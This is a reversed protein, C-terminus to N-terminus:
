RRQGAAKVRPCISQVSEVPPPTPRPAPRAPYPFDQGWRYEFGSGDLGYRSWELNLHVSSKGEPRVLDCTRMKSASFTSFEEEAGRQNTYRISQNISESNISPKVTIAWRLERRILKCSLIILHVNNSSM